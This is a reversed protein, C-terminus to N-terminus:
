GEIPDWIELIRISIFSKASHATNYWLLYLNIGVCAPAILCLIASKALIPSLSITEGKEGRIM